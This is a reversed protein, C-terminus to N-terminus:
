FVGIREPEGKAMTKQGMSFRVKVVPRGRKLPQGSETVAEWEYRMQTLTTIDSHAKELVRNRFMGFTKRMSPPTRLMEHLESVGIETVACEGWSRLIEYIRQSYTSPLSLYEALSYKTFHKKLELYHPKLGPDFRM